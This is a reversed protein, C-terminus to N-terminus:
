LCFSRVTNLAPASAIMAQGLRYPRLQESSLRDTSGSPLTETTAPYQERISESTPPRDNQSSAPPLVGFRRSNESTPLVDTPLHQVSGTRGPQLSLPPQFPTQHKETSGQSLQGGNNLPPQEPPGLEKQQGPAPTFAPNNNM